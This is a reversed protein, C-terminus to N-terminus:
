WRLRAYLETPRIIRKTNDFMTKTDHRKYEEVTTKGDKTVIILEGIIFRQKDEDSMMSFIEDHSHM